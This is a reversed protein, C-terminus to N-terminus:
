ILRKAIPRHLQFPIQILRIGKLQRLHCSRVLRLSRCCRVVEDVAELVAVAVALAVALAAALAVAVAVAVAVVLTEQSQSNWTNRPPQEMLM